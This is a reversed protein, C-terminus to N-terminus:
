CSIAYSHFPSKMQPSVTNIAYSPNRIWRIAILYVCDRTSCFFVINLMVGLAEVSTGTRITLYIPLRPISCDQVLGPIYRKVRQLDTEQTQTYFTPAFNYSIVRMFLWMVRKLIGAYPLFFNSIIYIYIYWLTLSHNEKSHTCLRPMSMVITDSTVRTDSMRAMWPWQPQKFYSSWYCKTWCNLPHVNLIQWWPFYYVIRIVSGGQIARCYSYKFSMKIAFVDVAIQLENKLWSQNVKIGGHLWLYISLFVVCM